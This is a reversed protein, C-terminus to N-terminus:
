PLAFDLLEVRLLLALAPGTLSLGEFEGRLIGMAILRECGEASLTSVVTQWPCGKTMAEFVQRQVGNLPLVSSSTADRPVLLAEADIGDLLPKLEMQSSEPLSKVSVLTHTDGLFLITASRISASTPLKPPASSDTIM